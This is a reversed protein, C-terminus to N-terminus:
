SENKALIGKALTFYKNYFMMKVWDRNQSVSLSRVRPNCARQDPTESLDSCM